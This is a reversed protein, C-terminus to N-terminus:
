QKVAQKLQNEIDALKLAMKAALEAHSSKWASSIVFTAPAVVTQIYGDSFFHGEISRKYDSSSLTRAQYVGDKLL